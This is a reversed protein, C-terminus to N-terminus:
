NNEWDIALTKRVDKLYSQFDIFDTRKESKSFEFNSQSKIELGFIKPINLFESFEAIENSNEDKEKKKKKWFNLIKHEKQEKKGFNKEYNFFFDGDLMLILQLLAPDFVHKLRSINKEFFQKKKDDSSSSDKTSEFKVKKEEEEKSKSKKKKKNRKKQFKEKLSNPEMSKSKQTNKDEVHSESSDRLTKYDSVIKEEKKSETKDDEKKEERTNDERNNDERNKEERNNDERNNDERNNDERNKDERNNDEGNNDKNIETNHINQTTTETKNTQITSTSDELKKELKKPDLNKPKYNPSEFEEFKNVMDKVSIRRSKLQPPNPSSNKLVEIQKLQPSSSAHSIQPSSTDRNIQSPPLHTITNPSPPLQTITNSSPPLHTITNPSPPLKTKPSPLKKNSKPSNIKKFLIPSSHYTLQPSEPRFSQNPKNTENQDKNSSSNLSDDSREEHESLILDMYSIDMVHEGIQKTELSFKRNQLVLFSEKPTKELHPSNDDRNEKENNISEFQLKPLTQSKFPPDKDDSWDIEESSDREIEEFAPNNSKVNEEKGNSSSSQKKQPSSPSDVHNLYSSPLLKQLNPLTQSKFPPDQDDSWDIEESSNREVTTPNEATNTQCTSKNENLDVQKPHNTDTMSPSNTQSHKHLNPLTQSKFPPDKDDSWDIEESSDREIEEFAPNNSKVNEEKGNSSSSQKKQPSSPSDVHNLYSSPLLKQLNPLTQSKFPPDQDDSWDIEESSNREVITPNVPKREELIFTQKKQTKELSDRSLPSLPTSNSKNNTPNQDAIQIYPLTNSKHITRKAIQKNDQESSIKEFFSSNNKMMLLKSNRLHKLKPSSDKEIHSSFLLDKSSPLHSLQNSNQTELNSQNDLQHSPESHPAFDDSSTFPELHHARNSSLTPSYHPPTITRKKKVSRKSKSFSISSSTSILQQSSLHPSSSPKYNFHDSSSFFNFARSKQQSLPLPDITNSSFSSSRLTQLTSISNTDKQSFSSQSKPELFYSSDVSHKLASSISSVVPVSSISIQYLTICITELSRETQESLLKKYISIRQPAYEDLFENYIEKAMAISDTLNELVVFSKFQKVKYYFHLDNVFGLNQAISMVQSNCSNDELIRFLKKARMYIIQSHSLNDENSFTRLISIAPSSSEKFQNTSTKILMNNNNNLNNGFKELYDKYLKNQIEEMLERKAKQFLTAPILDDSKLNSSSKLSKYSQLKRILENKM